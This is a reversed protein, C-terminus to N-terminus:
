VEFDTSEVIQGKVYIIASWTGAGTVGSQIRIDTGSKAATLAPIKDQAEDQTAVITVKAYPSVASSTWTIDYRASGSGIGTGVIRAVLVIKGSPRIADPNGTQRPIAIDIYDALSSDSISLTDDVIGQLRLGTATKINGTVDLNGASSLTMKTTAAESAGTKFQLSTKNNTADFTDEAIAVIAAGTLVADTGSAELPARFNIAGLVDNADVTTEKTSLTLVAGETTLGGQLETLSVPTTTGIGVNGSSNIAMMDANTGKGRIFLKDTAHDYKISGAAAGDYFVVQTGKTAISELYLSMDETAHKVQLKGVPTTTGIGVRNNGADVAIVPVEGADTGYIYTNIDASDANIGVYGNAYFYDIIKEGNALIFAYTDTIKLHNGTDFGVYGSSVVNGFSVNNGSAYFQYVTKGPAKFYTDHTDTAFGFQKERLVTQLNAATDCVRLVDANTNAM